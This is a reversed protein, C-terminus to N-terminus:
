YRLFYCNLRPIEQASVMFLFITTHILLSWSSEATPIFTGIKVSGCKCITFSLPNTCTHCHRLTMKASLSRPIGWSLCILKRNSTWPRKTTTRQWCKWRPRTQKTTKRSSPARGCKKRTLSGCRQVRFYFFICNTV